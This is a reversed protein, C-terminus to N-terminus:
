SIDDVLLSWHALPDRKSIFLEKIRGSIYDKWDMERCKVQRTM